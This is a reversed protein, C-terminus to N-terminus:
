EVFAVLERVAQGIDSPPAPAYLRYGLELLQKKLHRWIAEASTQPGGVEEIGSSIASFLPLLRHYAEEISPAKFPILLCSKVRHQEVLFLLFSPYALTTRNMGFYEKLLKSFYYGRSQSRSISAATLMEIYRADSEYGVSDRLAFVELHPGSAKDLADWYDPDRLLKRLSVTGEDYVLAGFATVQPRQCLEMLYTALHASPISGLPVRPVAVSPPILLTGTSGRVKRILFECVGIVGHTRLDLFGTAIPLGEIWSDDVKVPLVYESAEQIMRDFAARREVRTYVSGQYASSILVLVYRGKERYARNLYEVLNQGWLEHQFEEDLFVRLGNTTAIEYIARAYTRETGAFSLLVDFELSDAASM